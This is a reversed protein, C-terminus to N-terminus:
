PMPHGWFNNNIVVWDNPLSYVSQQPSSDKLSPNGNEAGATAFVGTEHAPNRTDARLLSLPLYGSTSSEFTGEPLWQYPGQVPLHGHYTSYSQYGSVPGFWVYQGWTSNDLSSLSGLNQTQSTETLFSQHGIGSLNGNGADCLPLTSSILGLHHPADSFPDTSGSGIIGGEVPQTIPETDPSACRDPLPLDTWWAIDETSPSLVISSGSSVSSSLSTGGGDSFIEENQATRDDACGDEVLNIAETMTSNIIEFTSPGPTKEDFLTSLKRAVRSGQREWVWRLLLMSEQVPSGMYFSGSPEVKPFLIRWLDYWQQKVPKGRSDYRMMLAKRDVSVGDSELLRSPKCINAVLHGDRSKANEFVAHCTPCYLEPLRHKRYIHQKVYSIRRLDYFACAHYKQPNM